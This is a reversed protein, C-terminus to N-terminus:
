MPKTLIKAEVPSTIEASQSAERPSKERSPGRGADNQKIRAYYFLVVGQMVAESVVVGVEM